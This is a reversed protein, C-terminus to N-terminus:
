SRCPWVSVRRVSWRRARLGRDFGGQARQVGFAAADVRQGGGQAVTEAGGEGGGDVQDAGRLAADDDGAHALGAVDARLIAEVKAEVPM